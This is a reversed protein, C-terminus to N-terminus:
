HRDMFSNEARKSIYYGEQIAAVTAVSCVTIVSYRVTIAGFTFPLLFLLFGTIKNMVTHVAIFSKNCIFGLIINAIKIVAIVSIWTLSWKPVDTAPLIKILASSLFVIDAATDLCSGLKGASNTKRAVAGDIMDTIGSTLYLAYFWFSFTPFMLMCMSFIVRSGTIINAAYQKM